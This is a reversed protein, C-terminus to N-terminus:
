DVLWCPIGFDINWYTSTQYTSSANKLRDSLAGVISEGTALRFTGTYETPIMRDTTTAITSSAILNTAYGTGSTSTGLSVAFSPGLTTSLSDALVGGSHCMMNRGTKNTYVAKATGTAITFDANAIFGDYSLATTSTGNVTMGLNSFYGDNYKIAPFYDEILLSGPDGTQGVNVEKKQPLIVTALAIIALVLAISAIIPFIFKKM